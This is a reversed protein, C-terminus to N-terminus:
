IGYIRMLNKISIEISYGHEEFAKIIKCKDYEKKNVKSLINDVWINVNEELSLKTVLKLGLDAEPQIAESVVCPVGSAQAELMVLGLGEYISPFIFIDMSHLITDIDDRIGIFRVKEYLNLKKVMDKIEPKIKGDGVLLLVVDINRDVMNKLIHILFKHNKSETFRGIHGIILSNNANIEKKFLDIQEYKKNIFKTYDIPNAFYQYKNNSKKNGYLYKRASESCALLNTSNQNISFRMLKRYIRNVLNNNIDLNTHSHSIRIKVGCKKASIMAVGCNFLTHAHVVDYPGYEEIADCLEKISKSKKLKIIKGGLKKIEDDYYADIESYSIFDFQVKSKDINRYINMLMTETGGMNMMGVIHLVKIKKKSM